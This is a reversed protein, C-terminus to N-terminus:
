LYPPLKFETDTELKSFKDNFSFYHNDVYGGQRVKLKCKNQLHSRQTDHIPRKSKTDEGTLLRENLIM